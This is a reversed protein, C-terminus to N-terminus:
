LAVVHSVIRMQSKRRSEASFRASERLTARFHVGTRIVSYRTLTEQRPPVPNAALFVHRGAVWAIQGKTGAM